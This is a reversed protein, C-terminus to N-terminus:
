RSRRLHEGGSPLVSGSFSYFYLWFCLVALFYEVQQGLANTSTHKRQCHRYFNGVNIHFVGDKGELRPLIREGCYGCQICCVCGEEYHLQHQKKRERVYGLGIKRKADEGNDQYFGYLYHANIMERAEDVMALLEEATLSSNLFTSSITRKSEEPEEFSNDLAEDVERQLRRHLEPDYLIDGWSEESGVSSSVSSSNDDDDSYFFILQLFISFHLCVSRATNLICSFETRTM